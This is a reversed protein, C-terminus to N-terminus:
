KRTRFRWMVPPLLNGQADTMVMNKDSNLELAYATDPALRCPITMVRATSDYTPRGSVTPFAVGPVQVVAMHRMPRDFTVTIATVKAADVNEADNEPTMSVVRPVNGSELKARREAQIGAAEAAAALRYEEFFAVIRPAFADLTPYKARHQEYDALLDALKDVALFAREREWAAQRRGAEAGQNWAYRVACARVLSEHLITEGPGYAQREMEDQVLPYMKEAAPMLEALHAKVIPSVFTHAFEHAITVARSLPFTPLGAADVDATGLVVWFDEAGSEAPTRADRGNGDAQRVQLGGFSGSAFLLNLAIVYGRDPRGFFRDLWEALGAQRVMADARDISARYLQDHAALFGAVDADRAFARLDALFARADATTWRTRADPFPDLSVREALEPLGTTYLALVIPDGFSIGRTKRLERARAVVPHDRFRGFHADVDKAYSAAAAYSYEVCGALRFVITMLEIRPDVVVRIRLPDTQQAATRDGSCVLLATICLAVFCTSKM